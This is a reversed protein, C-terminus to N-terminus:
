KKLPKAPKGKETKITVAKHKVKTKGVPGDAKTTKKV